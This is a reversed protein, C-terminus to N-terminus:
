FFSLLLVILTSFEFDNTGNNVNVAKNTAPLAANKEINPNDLSNAPALRETITIALENSNPLNTAAENTYLYQFVILQNNFVYKSIATTVKIPIVLAPINPKKDM